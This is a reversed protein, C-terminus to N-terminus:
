NLEKNRGGINHRGGSIDARQGAAHGAQQSSWDTRRAVARSKGLRPFFESVANEVSTKRDLLAPLLDGLSEQERARERENIRARVAYTFGLLYDTLKAKHRRITPECFRMAQVLLSTYLMEAYEADDEFGIIWATQQKKTSPALVVECGAARAAVALLQKKAPLNADNTSYIVERKVPKAAVDGAKALQWREVAHKTMLEEAKAYFAEAEHEFETREAKALLAQIKTIVSEMLRGEVTPRRVRHSAGRLRVEADFAARNDLTMWRQRAERLHTNYTHTDM